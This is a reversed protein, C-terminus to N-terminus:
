KSRPSQNLMAVSVVNNSILKRSVMIVVILNKLSVPGKPKVNIPVHKLLKKQIRLSELKRILKRQSISAIIMEGLVYRLDKPSHHSIDGDTVNSYIDRGWKEWEEASSHSPEASGEESQSRKILETQLRNIM